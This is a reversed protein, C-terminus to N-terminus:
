TGIVNNVEGNGQISIDFQLYDGSDSTEGLDSIWGEGIRLYVDPVISELKWQGITDAKWLDFLEDYSIQNALPPNQAYSSNSFSWSKDGPLNKTWGGECKNSVSVNDTSGQFGDSTSCAVLKWDPVGPTGVNFYLGIDKSSIEM